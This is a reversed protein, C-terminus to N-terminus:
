PRRFLEARHHQSGLSVECEALLFAVTQRVLLRQRQGDTYKFVIAGPAFHPPRFRREAIASPCTTKALRNGQVPFILRGLREAPM